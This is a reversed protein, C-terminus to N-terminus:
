GVVGQPFIYLSSFSYCFFSSFFYFVKISSKCKESLMSSKDCVGDGVGALWGLYFWRVALWGGRVYVILTPWCAYLIWSRFKIGWKWNEKRKEKKKSEEAKSKNVVISLVCSTFIFTCTHTHSYTYIIFKRPFNCCFFFFPFCFTFFSCFFLFLFSFSLM